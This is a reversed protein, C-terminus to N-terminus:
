AGVALRAFHFALYAFCGAVVLYFVRILLTTPLWKAPLMPWSAKKLLLQRTTRPGLDEFGNSPSVLGTIVAAVGSKAAVAKELEQLVLKMARETGRRYLTDKAVSSLMLLAFLAALLSVGAALWSVAAEKSSLAQVAFWTIVSFAFASGSLKTQM